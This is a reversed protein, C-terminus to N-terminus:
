CGRLGDHVLDDVSAHRFLLLATTRSHPRMAQQLRPDLQEISRQFLIERVVKRVDPRRLTIPRPTEQVKVGSWIIREDVGVILLAELGLAEGM